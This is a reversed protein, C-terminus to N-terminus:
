SLYLVQPMDVQPLLLLQGVQLLRFDILILNPHKLIPKVPDQFLLCPQLILHFGQLDLEPM